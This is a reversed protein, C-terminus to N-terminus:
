IRESCPVSRAVYDHGQREVNVRTSAATQRRRNVGGSATTAALWVMVANVRENITQLADQGGSVGLGAVAMSPRSGPAARSEEEAERTPSRSFNMTQPNM